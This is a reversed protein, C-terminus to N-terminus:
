SFAPREIHTQGVAKAKSGPDREELPLGQGPGSCSLAVFHRAVEEWHLPEELPPKQEPGGLQSSPSITPDADYDPM